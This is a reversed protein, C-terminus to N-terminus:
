VDESKKLDWNPIIFSLLISPITGKRMSVYSMNLSGDKDYGNEIDIRENLNVLGGPTYVVYPLEFTFLFVLIILTILFKINELIFLKVKEYIKNFM